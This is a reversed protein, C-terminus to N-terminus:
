RKDIGVGRAQDMPDVSDDIDEEEDIDLGELINQLDKDNDLFDDNLGEFDM